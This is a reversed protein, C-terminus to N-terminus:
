NHFLNITVVRTQRHRLMQKYRLHTAAQMQRSEELSSGVWRQTDAQRLRVAHRCEQSVRAYM